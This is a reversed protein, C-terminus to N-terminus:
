QKGPTLWGAMTEQVAKYDEGGPEMTLFDLIGGLEQPHRRAAFNIYDALVLPKGDMEVQSGNRGILPTARPEGALEAHAFLRLALETGMNVDNLEAAYFADILEDHTFGEHPSAVEPSVAIIEGVQGQGYTTEYGM